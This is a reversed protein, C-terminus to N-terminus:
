EQETETLDFSALWLPLTIQSVMAFNRSISFALLGIFLATDQRCAKFTLKCLSWVKGCISKKGHRKAEKKNLINPESISVGMIAASMLYMLTYLSFQYWYSKMKSIFSYLVTVSIINGLTTGASQVGNAKGRNDATVYDNIFPEDIDVRRCLGNSNQM